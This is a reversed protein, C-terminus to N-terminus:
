ARDYWPLSYASTSLFSIIFSIISSFFLLIIPLILKSLELTFNVPLLLIKYILSSIVSTFELMSKLPSLERTYKHLVASFIVTSILSYLLEVM